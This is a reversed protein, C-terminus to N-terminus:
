PLSQIGLAAVTRRDLVGTPELEREKQAQKVAEVTRANLTGDARGVDHGEGMLLRQASGITARDRVRARWYHDDADSSTMGAELTGGEAVCQEKEPGMLEDCTGRLPRDQALAAASIVASVLFTALLTDANM